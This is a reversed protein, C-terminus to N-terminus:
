KAAMQTGPDPFTEGGLTNRRACFSLMCAAQLRHTLATKCFFKPFCVPMRHCVHSVVYQEAATGAQWAGALVALGCATMEALQRLTCTKAQQGTRAQWESQAISVIKPWRTIVRAFRHACHGQTKDQAAM